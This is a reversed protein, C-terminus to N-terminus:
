SSRRNRFRDHIARALDDMTARPAQISPEVGLERLVEAASLGLVATEARRLVEAAGAPGMRAALRQHLLNVAMGSTFVLLGWREAPPLAVESAPEIEYAVVSDVSWGAATLLNPLETRANRAAPFLARPAEKAAGAGSELLNSALSRADFPDPVLDPDRGLRDRLNSATAPGVCAVRLESPLAISLRGMEDAVGLVARGSTFVLWDYNGLARLCSRLPEPDSPPSTRTLAAHELRAGWAALARDFPDDPREERTLLVTVGDLPRHEIM